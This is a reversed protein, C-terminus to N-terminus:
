SVKKFPFGFGDLLAKAGEDNSSSTVVTIQIGYDKVVEKYHIEPFVNYTKIGFSYAGRGDFSRSSFGDFDRIRPAAVNVMRELFDYMKKGRLTVAVGVPMGKRLKFNSVSLRAERVVPKQGSIVAVGEVIKSYDKGGQLWSGMGVNIVIKELRPVAMSNSINLKKQLAPAVSDSYFDVFSM